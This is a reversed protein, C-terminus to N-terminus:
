IVQKAAPPECIKAVVRHVMKATFLGYGIGRVKELNGPTVRKRSCCPMRLQFLWGFAM